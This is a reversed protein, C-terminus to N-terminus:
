EERRIVRERGLKKLRAATEEAQKRAKAGAILM